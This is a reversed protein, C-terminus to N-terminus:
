NNFNLVAFEKFLHKAKKNINKQTKLEGGENFGCKRCRSKRHIHSGAKPTFDGHIRCTVIVKTKLSCYVTKSYDYTEGHIKKAKEIFEAQTLKTNRQKAM